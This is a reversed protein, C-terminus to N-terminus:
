RPNRALASILWTVLAPGPALVCLPPLLLIHIMTTTTATAAAPPATAAVCLPLLGALTVGPTGPAGTGVGIPMVGPVPLM